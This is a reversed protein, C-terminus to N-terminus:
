SADEDTPHADPVADPDHPESDPDPNVAAFLHGRRAGAPRLSPDAGRGSFPDLISNIRQVLETMEEATAWFEGTNVTVAPVWEPQVPDIAARQLDQLLRHMERQVYLAAVQTSNVISQPDNPDPSLNRSDHAARWPKERGRQEAREVYGYKELTRLHFSCNAVTQDLREAIESATKEGHKDLISLIEVRLPHALAKLTEPDGTRLERLENREAM